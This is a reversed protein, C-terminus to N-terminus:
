FLPECAAWLLLIFWCQYLGTMLALGVYSFTAVIIYNFLSVFYASIFYTLKTAGRQMLADYYGSEYKQKLFPLAIGNAVTVLFFATM